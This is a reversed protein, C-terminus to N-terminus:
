NIAFSTMVNKLIKAAVDEQQPSYLAAVMYNSGGREIIFMDMQLTALLGYPM